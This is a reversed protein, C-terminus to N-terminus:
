QHNQENENREIFGKIAYKFCNIQNNWLILSNIATEKSVFTQQQELEIFAKIHHDCKCINPIHILTYLLKIM